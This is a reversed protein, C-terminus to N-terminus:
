DFSVQFRPEVFCFVISFLSKYMICSCTGETCRGLHDLIAGRVRCALGAGAALRREFESGPDLPGGVVVSGWAFADGDGGGRTGGARYADDGDETSSLSVDVAATVDIYAEDISAKEVACSPLLSRLLAMIEASARRYRELCAKHTARTASSGEEQHRRGGIFNPNPNQPDNDNIHQLGHMQGAAVGQGGEQNVANEEERKEEQKGKGSGEDGITEVHVLVIDPCKARAEAVRMHRTVGKERAAYNVAILGAWQQVACPTDRPINLRKQEV